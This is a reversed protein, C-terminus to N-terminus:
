WKPQFEWKRGSKILIDIADTYTVRAFDAKLTHQIREASQKDIWKNFFNMEQPCNELIRKTVYKISAEALSMVQHVDAFAVEPELMWFEALHRSTSSQEARFTPGFAYVRSIAAAAMEGYLQGSV